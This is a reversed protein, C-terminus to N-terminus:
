PNPDHAELIKVMVDDKGFLQALDRRVVDQNSKDFVKGRCSRRIAAIHLSNCNELAVVDDILAKIYTDGTVVDHSQLIANRIFLNLTYILSQNLSFIISKDVSEHTHHQQSLLVM